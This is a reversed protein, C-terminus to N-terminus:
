SAEYYNILERLHNALTFNNNLRKFGNEGMLQRLKDDNLLTQVAASLSVVNFPNVIFGTKNHEVIEPTGGFCTGVVPKKCAMAELNVLNFPDPYISPTVVVDASQMLLKIIPRDVEGLFKVSDKGSKGVIKFVAKTLGREQGAIFLVASSISQRVLKFSRAVQLIGKAESARGAFLVIKKGVAGHNRRFESVQGADIEWENPELANHLVKIKSWRNAEYINKLSQSVAFIIDVYLLNKKILMPRLPNYQLGAQKIQRLLRPRFNVKPRDSLDRHNVASTFKGYTLWMADHLTLFTKSGQLKAEKLCALSLHEHLNHAQVIDPRLDVLLPILEKLVPTFNLNAKFRRFSPIRQNTVIVRVKDIEPVQAAATFVTVEYQDRLALSQQWAISRAGGLASFDDTLILLKKM